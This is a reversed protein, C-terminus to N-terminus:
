DSMEMPDDDPPLVDDRFREFGEFEPWAGGYKQVYRRWDSEQRRGLWIQVAEKVIGSRSKGTHRVAQDLASLTDKDLHISVAM